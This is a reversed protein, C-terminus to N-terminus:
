RRTLTQVFQQRAAPKGPPLHGSVCRDRFRNVGAPSPCPDTHPEARFVGPQIEQRHARLRQIETKDACQLVIRAQVREDAVHV